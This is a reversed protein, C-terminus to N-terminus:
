PLKEKLLYLEKDVRDRIRAADEIQIKSIGASIRLFDSFAAEIDLLHVHSGGHISGYETNLIKSINVAFNEFEVKFSDTKLFDTKDSIALQNILYAVGRSPLNTSLFCYKSFFSARDIIKGQEEVAILQLIKKGWGLISFLPNIKHSSYSFSDLGDALHLWFYQDNLELESFLKEEPCTERRCKEGYDIRYRLDKGKNKAPHLLCGIQKFESDLYGLAWCSFGTIPNINNSTNDFQKTNELLTRKIINRYDIHEYDAPRIPPCCAFCSKETDPCCLSLHVTNM